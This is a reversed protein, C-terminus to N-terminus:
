FINSIGQLILLRYLCCQQTTGTVLYLVLCMFNFFFFFGVLIIVEKVIQLFLRSNFIKFHKGGM